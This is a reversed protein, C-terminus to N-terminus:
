KINETIENKPHLYPRVNEIPDIRKQEYAHVEITSNPLGMSVTYGDRTDMMLNLVHIREM